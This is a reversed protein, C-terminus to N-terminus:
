SCVTAWCSLPGLRWGPNSWLAPRLDDSFAQRTLEAIQVRGLECEKHYHNNFRSQIRIALFDGCGQSALGLFCTATWNTFLWQAAPESSHCTSSVGLSITGLRHQHFQSPKRTTTKLDLLTRRIEQVKPNLEKVWFRRDYIELYDRRYLECMVALTWSMM